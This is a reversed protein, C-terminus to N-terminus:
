QSRAADKVVMETDESNKTNETQIPDLDMSNPDELAHSNVDASTEDDCLAEYDGQSTNEVSGDPSTSPTLAPTPQQPTGAFVSAAGSSEDHCPTKAQEPVSADAVDVCGSAANTEEDDDKPILVEQPDVERAIATPTEDM